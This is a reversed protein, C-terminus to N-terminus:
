THPNLQRPAFEAAKKRRDTEAQQRQWRARFERLERRLASADFQDSANGANGYRTAEFHRWLPM